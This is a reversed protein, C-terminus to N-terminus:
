VTGGVVPFYLCGQVTINYYQAVHPFNVVAQLICKAYCYFATTREEGKSGPIPTLWSQPIGSAPASATSQSYPPARVFRSGRMGPAWTGAALGITTLAVFASLFRKLM